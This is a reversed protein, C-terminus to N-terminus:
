EAMKHIEWKAESIAQEIAAEESPAIHGDCRHVEGGDIQYTAVWGGGRKITNVTIRHGRFQGLFMEGGGRAFVRATKEKVLARSLFIFALESQNVVTVSRPSFSCHAPVLKPCLSSNLNM